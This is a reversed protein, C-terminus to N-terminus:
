LVTAEKAAKKLANILFQFCHTTQIDHDTFGDIVFGAFLLFIPPPHPFIYQPCLLMYNCGHSIYRTDANEPGLYIRREIILGLPTINCLSILLSMHATALVVNMEKVRQPTGAKLLVTIFVYEIYVTCLRLSSAM